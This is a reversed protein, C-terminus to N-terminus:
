ALRTELILCIQARAFLVSQNTKLEADAAKLNKKTQKINVVFKFRVYHLKQLMVTHGCLRFVYSNQNRLYILSLILCFLSLLFMFLLIFSYFTLYFLTESLNSPFLNASISMLTCINFRAQRYKALRIISIM